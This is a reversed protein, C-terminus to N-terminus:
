VPVTPSYFSKMPDSMPAMEMGQQPMMMGPPMMMGQGPGMGQPQQMMVVGPMPPMVPMMQVPSVMPNPAYIAPVMPAQQVPVAPLSEPGTRVCQEGGVCCDACMEEDGCWSAEKQGFFGGNPMCLGGVCGYTEQSYFGETPSCCKFIPDITSTKETDACCYGTIRNHHILRLITM